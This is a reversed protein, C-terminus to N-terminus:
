GIEMLMHKKNTYCCLIGWSLLCVNHLFNVEKDLSVCGLELSIGMHLKQQLGCPFKSQQLDRPYPIMKGRAGTYPTTYIQGAAAIPLNLSQIAPTLRLQDM